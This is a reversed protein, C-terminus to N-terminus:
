RRVVFQPAAGADEWLWFREGLVEIMSAREKGGWGWGGGGEWGGEWERKWEGVGEGQEIAPAAVSSSILHLLVGVRLAWRVRWRTCPAEFGAGLGNCM